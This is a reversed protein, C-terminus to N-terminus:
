NSIEDLIERVRRVYLKNLLLFVFVFMIWRIVLISQGPKDYWHVSAGPINLAKGILKKALSFGAM